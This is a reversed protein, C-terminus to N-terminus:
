STTSALCSFTICPSCICVMQPIWYEKKKLHALYTMFCVLVGLLFIEGSGRLEKIKSAGERLAAEEALVMSPIFESVRVCGGRDCQVRLQLGYTAVASLFCNLVTDARNNISAQLYVPLRSYGDIGGHIVIRWRILKHYGDIHWLSNPMSM